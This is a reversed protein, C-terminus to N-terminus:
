GYAASKPNPVALPLTDGLRQMEAALAATMQAVRASHESRAALNKLEHPDSKLDFLQTQDVQPYRILKWRDDRLARQVNRYAFM